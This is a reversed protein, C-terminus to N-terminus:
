RYSKSISKSYINLRVQRIFPGTPRQIVLWLSQGHLRNCADVSTALLTLVLQLYWRSIVNKGTRATRLMSLRHVTTIVLRNGVHAKMPLHVGALQVLIYLQKRYVLQFFYVLSVAPSWCLYIIIPAPVGPRQYEFLAVPEISLAVGRARCIPRYTSRDSGAISRYLVLVIPAEIENAMPLMIQMSGDTCCGCIVLHFRWAEKRTESRKSSWLCQGTDFTFFFLHKVIACTWDNSKSEHGAGDRPVETPTCRSEM